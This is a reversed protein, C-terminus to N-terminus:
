SCTVVCKRFGTSCFTGGVSCIYNGSSTIPSSCTCNANLAKQPFLHALAAGLVAGRIGMWLIMRTLRM